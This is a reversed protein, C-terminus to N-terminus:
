HRVPREHARREVVRVRRRRRRPNRLAEPDRDRRRVGVPDSGGCRGRDYLAGVDAHSRGPYWLDLGYRSAPQGATVAYRQAGIRVAARERCGNDIDDHGRAAGSIVGLAFAAGAGAGFLAAVGLGLWVIRHASLRKGPAPEQAVRELVNRKMSVLLRTSSM